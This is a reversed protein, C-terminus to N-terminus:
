GSGIFYRFLVAHIAVQDIDESVSFTKNKECCADLFIQTGCKLLYAKLVCLYLLHGLIEFVKNWIKQSLNQKKHM